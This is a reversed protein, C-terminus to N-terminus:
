YGQSKCLSPDKEPFLPSTPHAYLTHQIHMNHIHLKRRTLTQVVAAMRWNSGNPLTYEELFPDPSDSDREGQSENGASIKKM